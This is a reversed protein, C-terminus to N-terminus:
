AYLVPLIALNAPEPTGGVSVQAISFLWAVILALTPSARRLALAAGMGLAVAAGILHFGGVFANLLFWGGGLVIDFMLQLQTLRRFMVEVTRDRSPLTRARRCSILCVPKSIM